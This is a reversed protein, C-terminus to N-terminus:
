STYMKGEKREVVSSTMFPNHCWGFTVVNVCNNIYISITFHSRGLGVVYALTLSSVESDGTQLTSKATRSVAAESRFGDPQQSEPGARESPLPQVETSLGCCWLSDRLTWLWVTQWSVHMVFSLTCSMPNCNSLANSSM